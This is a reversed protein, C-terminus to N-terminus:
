VAAREVPIVRQGTFLGKAMETEFPIFQKRQLEAFRRIHGAALELAAALEANDRGLTERAALAKEVPVELHEPSARDFRAAYNRVAGDGDHRVAEIIEGVATNVAADDNRGRRNKKWYTDFDAADIIEM